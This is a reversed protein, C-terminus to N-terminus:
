ASGDGDIDVLPPPVHTFAAAGYGKEPDWLYAESGNGNDPPLRGFFLVKGTPLLAAHIAYTRHDEDPAVPVPALPFPASGLAPDVNWAGVGAPPDARAPPCIAVCAVAIAVLRTGLRM